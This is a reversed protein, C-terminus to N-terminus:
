ANEGLMANLAREFFDTSGFNGSKLALMLPEDDVSQTLPVGPAIVPGIQLATVGLAGVIAGSTEGGAVIFKTVGQSRLAQAIASFAQEILHGAGEVGITLQAAKVEDPPSTSYILVTEPSKMCFEVAEFVPDEGRALALPDIRFSPRLKRWHAVQAQTAVSASGALIVVRGDVRQSRSAAREAPLLGERRFNEPLGLAIASGGTILRSGACAAALAALDANSTADAIAFRVGEERLSEIQRTISGVGGAIVDYRLLGVKSKTQRQMVRVLNADTMPTLPHHEMGSESLLTDGVFLHGRYVTRGNDPFAPCVIAFDEHLADLLADAVPGINGQDTSDFTSCYKFFFQRCGQSRLWDLAQLSLEVSDHPPAMRTKLAVVLADADVPDEGSPVGITQVTRMGGRVLMSALDTAGTFDDAICGVLPRAQVISEEFSTM